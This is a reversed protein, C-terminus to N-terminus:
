SSSNSTRSIFIQTANPNGSGEQSQSQSEKWMYSSRQAQSAATTCEGLLLQTFSNESAQPHQYYTGYKGTDQKEVQQPPQHEKSQERSPANKKGRKSESTKSPQTKVNKDHFKETWSKRRKGTKKSEKKKLTAKSSIYDEVGSPQVQANLDPVISAVRNSQEAKMSSLKKNVEVIINDLGNDVLSSVEVFSYAQCAVKLFKRCLARYRLTAELRPDELVIRGCRDQVVGSRAERTWRKLIYKEPILKINMVDLVKLAHACLIGLREFIRCSCSVTKTSADGFVQYETDISSDNDLNFIAVRYENHFEGEVVDKVYAANSLEYEDQFSAFIQPTYLKGVQNLLPIRRMKIRPLNEKSDFEHNIENQRKLDLVREFQKFFRMVDMNCKLYDKLDSNFSESLQTSRMGLSFVNRMYCEAWQKKFPYIFDLWTVKKVKGRLENFAKEFEVEDEISYMCAKFERFVDAGNSLLHKTANEKIHWTCLGYWVDPMMESIAIGMVIDQDTFLTKPHKNDHTAVFVGLPRNEKNTGFTTDFAVVDGFSAYDIIMKADAWFINTIKEECDLQVSYQFSPNEM